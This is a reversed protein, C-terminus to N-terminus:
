RFIFTPPPLSAGALRTALRTEAFTALPQVSRALASIVHIFAEM